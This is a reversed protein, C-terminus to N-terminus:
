LWTLLERVDEETTAWSTALRIVSRNGELPEWMSYIVHKSLEALKGNEVILFQQNTFTEPHFAYGKRILGEKLIMAMDIAHRGIKIYTDDTFLADFQLGLLWGKALLAGHEKTITFFHDALSPKTFVVAEGFLAGVKTGGIYFVETLSAIDKLTLDTKPSALGYGLRAGDLFLPLQYKRCVRHLASLEKKSYLTGGESPHSIYVMGPQVMHDNTDNALFAKMYTDVSSASLKGDVPSLTIVKHGTFEVAGSEHCAIHGTEASIVGQCERLIASIVTSNTQTGGVLFSVAAHPSGCAERIKAKAEECISDKGYGVHHELNTAELKKLIEPCCGEQYDSAFYLM